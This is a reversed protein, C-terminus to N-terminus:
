ETPQWQSTMEEDNRNFKSNTIATYRRVPKRPSTISPIASVMELDLFIEDFKEQNVVASDNIARVV